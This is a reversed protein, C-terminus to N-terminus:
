KILLMKKTETFNGAELKYFYVGSAFESANWEYMYNGAQLFTNSIVSIEEGLVNYIALKVNSAQAISFEILTSPNFPNPYNGKLSYGNRNGPLLTSGSSNDNNTKVEVSNTYASLGYENYACVKYIYIRDPELGVERYTLVDTATSDIIEFFPENDKKRAIKFGWENNSHDLWGIEVETGSQTIIELDSPAEPTGFVYGRPTTANAINSADSNGHGNFAVVYFSYETEEHLDWIYASTKNAPVDFLLKYQNRYDDKKYVHFGTENNSQDSWTLKILSYYLPEATLKGPKLPVDDGEFANSVNVQSIASNNSILIGVSVLLLIALKEKLFKKMKSYLNKEPFKKCISKVQLNIFLNGLKLFM